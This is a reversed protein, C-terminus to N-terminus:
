KTEANKSGKIEWKKIKKKEKIISEYIEIIETPNPLKVITSIRNGLDALSNGSLWVEKDIIFYRDHFIPDGTMINVEIKFKDSLNVLQNEFLKKESMKSKKALQKTKSDLGVDSTLIEIKVNTTIALPYKFLERTTFYPDIIIVQERAKGVLKRVFEVAKTEDECFTIQNNNKSLNKRNKRIEVENLFDLIDNKIENGVVMEPLKSYKQVTYNEEDKSYDKNKVNVTVKESAVNVQMCIKKLFGCFDHWYILGRKPCIIAIGVQDIEEKLNITLSTKKLLYEVFSSFGKPRKEIFLLKLKSLDVDKRAEVDIHVKETNKGGGRYHVKRILPNYASLVFAGFYEQNESIDFNLRKNIWDLNKNELCIDKLEKAFYKNFLFSTRVCESFDPLYPPSSVLSMIPYQPESLFISPEFIEKNAQWFTTLVEKRDQLKEYLKILKKASTVIRTFYFYKRGKNGVRQEQEDIKNPKPYENPYLEINAFILFRKEDDRFWLINLAGYHYDKELFNNYKPNVIEM